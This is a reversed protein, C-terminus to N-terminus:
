AAIVEDRVFQLRMLSPASDDEFYCRVADHVRAHLTEVKTVQTFTREDVSRANLGGEPAREVLVVFERIRSAKQAFGVRGAAGDALGSAGV